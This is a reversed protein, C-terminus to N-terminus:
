LCTLSTVPWCLHLPHKQLQHGWRKWLSPCLPAISTGWRFPTHRPQMLVGAWYIYLYISITINTKREKNNAIQLLEGCSNKTTQFLLLSVVVIVVVDAVEVVEGVVIVILLSLEQFYHHHLVKWSQSLGCFKVYSYIYGFSGLCPLTFIM